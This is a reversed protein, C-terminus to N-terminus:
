LRSEASSGSSARATVADAGANANTGAAQPVDLLQPRWFGIGGRGGASPEPPSSTAFSARLSPSSARALTRTRILDGEVETAAAATAATAPLTGVLVPPALGLSLPLALGDASPSSSSGRGGTSLESSSCSGRLVCISRRAMGERAGTSPESSSSSGGGGGTSLESSSVEM